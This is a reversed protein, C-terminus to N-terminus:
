YRETDTVMAIGVKEINQKKTIMFNWGCIERMEGLGKWAKSMKSNVECKKTM